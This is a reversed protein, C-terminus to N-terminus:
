LSLFDLANFFREPLKINFPQVSVAMLLDFLHNYQIPYYRHKFIPLIRPSVSNALMGEFGGPARSQKIPIMLVTSYVPKWATEDGSNDVIMRRLRDPGLGVGSTVANCLIGFNGISEAISPVNNIHLFIGESPPPTFSSLFYFLHINVALTAPLWRIYTNYALGKVM